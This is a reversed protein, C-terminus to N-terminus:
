DVGEIEWHQLGGPTRVEFDDDRELGLMAAGLPARPSIGLLPVGGLEAKAGGSPVLLALCRQEERRLAVLSGVEIVGPEDPLTAPLSFWARLRRLATVRQAQGRALYSAETARTDYKGEQRSEASSAEERAMAAVREVADLEGQIAQLLASRAETKSPLM